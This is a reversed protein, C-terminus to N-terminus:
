RRIQMGDTREAGIGFASGDWYLSASGCASNNGTTANACLFIDSGDGSVGSSNFAGRMTLYIDSGDVWAGWVDEDGGNNLAIDSGDFYRVWTGATNAGTSTPTFLLLDEDSGGFGVNHGGATSLILANTSTLYIADVDEGNTTLSVDSGDFVLSFAGATTTGLSTPTFMVIDSDDINGVDPISSAGVISILISDNDMVYFADVDRAGAGGLGVDSGDFFMSWTASATDYAII